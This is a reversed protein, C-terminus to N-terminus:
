RLLEFSVAVTVHLSQEGSAIPTEPPAGSARMMVPYPRALGSSQETITLPAGIKVGAAKAFVEAKRRADAIAESRAADLAKSGDSVTFEVGGMDNAGAGVLRDILSGIKDLERITVIVSNSAQFGIIRERVPRGGDYVPRIAYRFTQVDKAAIGADKIVTMVASMAAANVSGADQATKADTIVGARLNASDPAVSVTGEGTVTIQPLDIAGAAGAVSTTWGAAAIALLGSIWIVARM